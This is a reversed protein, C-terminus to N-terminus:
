SSIILFLLASTTKNIYLLKPNAPIICSIISLPITYYLFVGCIFQFLLLLGLGILVWRSIVMVSFVTLVSVVFIIAVLAYSMIQNTIRGAKDRLMIRREDNMEIRQNKIKEEYDVAREPKSWYMYQLIMCVGPGLAAGSLGWIFAEFSFETFTALLVLLIGCIFYIIGVYLMNKKM